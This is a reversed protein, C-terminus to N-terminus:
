LGASSLTFQLTPTNISGASVKIAIQANAAFVALPTGIATVRKAGSLSLSYVPTVSSVNLDYFSITCTANAATTQFTVSLLNSAASLFIPSTDSSQNPFCELYRGSSANGGYAALLLFRDNALAQAKVEEIASQTETSSIGSPGANGSYQPNRNPEFPTQAALQTRGFIPGSM